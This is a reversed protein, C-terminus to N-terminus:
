FVEMAEEARVGVSGHSKAPGRDSWPAPPAGWAQSGQAPLRAWSAGSGPHGQPSCVGPAVGPSSNGASIKTNTCSQTSQSLGWCHRARTLRTSLPSPHTPARQPPDAGQGSGTSCSFVVDSAVLLAQFECKIARYLHFFCLPFLVGPTFPALVCHSGGCAGLPSPPM